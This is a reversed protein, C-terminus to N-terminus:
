SAEKGGGASKILSNPCGSRCARWLRILTPNGGCRPRRQNELCQQLPLVGLVPCPVHVDLFAGEVAKQVAELSGAYKRNIVQSVVASSYRLREAVNRMSEQDAATALVRVWAPLDEGWAAVAKEICSM